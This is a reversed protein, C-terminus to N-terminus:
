RACYESALTPIAQKWILSCVLENRSCHFTCTQAPQFIVVHSGSIRRFKQLARRLKCCDEDAFRIRYQPSSHGVTSQSLIPITSLFNVTHYRLYQSNLSKVAFKNCAAFYLVVSYQKLHNDCWGSVAGQRGWFFHSCLPWKRSHISITAPPMNWFTETAFYTWCTQAKGVGRHEEM